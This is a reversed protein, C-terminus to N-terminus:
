EVFRPPAGSISHLNFPHIRRSTTPKKVNGGLRWKSSCGRGYTGCEDSCMEIPGDGRRM